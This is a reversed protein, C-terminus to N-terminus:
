KYKDVVELLKNEAVAIYGNYEENLMKLNNFKEELSTANDKFIKRVKMFYTRAMSKQDDGFISFMADNKFVAYKKYLDYFGGNLYNLFDPCNTDDNWENKKEAFRKAKNEQYRRESAEEEAKQMMIKQEKREKLWKFM